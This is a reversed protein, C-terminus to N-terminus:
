EECISWVTVMLLVAFQQTEDKATPGDAETGSVWALKM